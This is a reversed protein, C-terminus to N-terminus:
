RDEGAEHFSGHDLLSGPESGFIAFAVNFLHPLNAVSLAGHSVHTVGAVNGISAQIQRRVIRFVDRAEFQDNVTPNRKLEILIGVPSGFMPSPSVAITCASSTLAEMLTHMNSWYPVTTSM